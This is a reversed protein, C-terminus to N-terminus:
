DEELFEACVYSELKTLDWQALIYQKGNKEGILIPDLPDSDMRRGAGAVLVQEWTCEWAVRLNTFGEEAFKPLQDRIAEPMVSSVEAKYWQGGQWTPLGRYVPVRKNADQQAERFLEDTVPVMRMQLVERLTYEERWARFGRNDLTWHMLHSGGDGRQTVNLWAPAEALYDEVWTCAFRPLGNPLRMSLFGLDIRRYQKVVTSM